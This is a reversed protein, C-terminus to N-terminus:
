APPKPTSERLAINYVMLEAISDSFSSALMACLVCTKYDTHCCKDKPKSCMKNWKEWGGPPKGENPNLTDKGRRGIKALTYFDENWLARHLGPSQAATALAVLALPLCFITALQM